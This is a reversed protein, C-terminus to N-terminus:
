TISNRLRWGRGRYSDCRKSRRIDETQILLWLKHLWDSLTVDEAIPPKEIDM